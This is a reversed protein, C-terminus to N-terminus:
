RDVWVGGTVVCAGCGVADHELLDLGAEQFFDGEEGGVVVALRFAFPPV